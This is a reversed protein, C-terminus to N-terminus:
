RSTEKQPSALPHSGGYVRKAQGSSIHTYIQTTSPSEHGLLEQVVRLDAGGDLLHTAFSHRLTHTHVREPDLGARRAYHKVANQISRPSLRAGYRNLFLAQNGPSGSALVPRADRLYRQVAKRAPVGMLVMREKSRKGWVRVEMASLDIGPVDLGSAESVRLGCAYVIELLASDRLGYVTSLDPSRLLLAIESETLYSPLRTELKPALAKAERSRRVWLASRPAAGERVLFRFFSRVASLKLAISRKRLGAGSLSAVYQRLLGRQVEAPERVGESELFSIFHSANDVYAGLTRTSVGREGVLHRHYAPMWQRLAGQTM